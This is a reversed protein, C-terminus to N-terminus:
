DTEPVAPTGTEALDKPRQAIGMFGNGQRNNWVLDLCMLLLVFPHLLVFYAPLIFWHRRSLKSSHPLFLYLIEFALAGFFGYTAVSKSLVLGAKRMKGEIEECTYDRVHGYQSGGAHEDARKERRRYFSLIRRPAIPVYVLILGGPRLAAVLNALAKEDQEIHELVSGCLILDYAERQELGLVDGHVVRVNSHGSRRAFTGFEAALKGDFELSTVNVAPFRSAVYYSYEGYGCGADLVSNAGSRRLLAGLERIIYWERLQTLYRMLFILKRFVPHTHIGGSRSAPKSADAM